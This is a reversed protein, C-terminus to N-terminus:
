LAGFDTGTALSQNLSVTSKGPLKYELFRVHELPQAVWVGALMLNYM